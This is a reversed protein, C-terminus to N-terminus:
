LCQTGADPEVQVAGVDALGGRPHQGPVGAEVGVQGTRQELCARLRASRAAVFALPVRRRVLVAPRACVGASPALLRAVLQDRRQGSRGDSGVAGGGTMWECHIVPTRYRPRYLAARDVPWERVSGVRPAPPRAERPAPPRPRAATTSGSRRACAPGAAGTSP